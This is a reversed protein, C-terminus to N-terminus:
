VRAASESSRSASDRHSLAPSLSLIRRSIEASRAAAASERLASNSAPLTDCPPAGHIARAALARTSESRRPDRDGTAALVGRAAHAGEKFPWLRRHGLGLLDEVQGSRA